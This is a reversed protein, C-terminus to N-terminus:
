SSLQPVLLFILISSLHQWVYLVQKVNSSITPSHFPGLLFQNFIILNLQLAIYSTSGVWQILILIHKSTIYEVFGPKICPMLLLALHPLFCMGMKQFNKRDRVHQLIACFAGYYSGHLWSILDTYSLTHAAPISMNELVTSVPPNTPFVSLGSQSVFHWSDILDSVTLCSHRGKSQTLCIGTYALELSEPSHVSDGRAPLWKQQLCSGSVEPM